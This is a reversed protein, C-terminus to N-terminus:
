ATISPWLAAIFRCANEIDAIRRTSSIPAPFMEGHRIDISMCLRNIIQAAPTFNREMHMRAIAAVYTGMEKRKAKALDTDADDQTLRLVAGGIQETGRSAGHAFLDLRVALEVGSVSLTPQERPAASFRISALQNTMGQMSRIVEISQRADDQRLTSQSSDQARQSFTNEAIVLPQM